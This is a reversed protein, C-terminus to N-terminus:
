DLDSTEEKEIKRLKSLARKLIRSVTRQSLKLINGVETQTLDMEFIYYSIKREVETLREFLQSLFIRDEIPLKFDEYKTSRIKTIDIDYDVKVIAKIIEKLGEEKINLKESLEKLSINENQSIIRLIKGLLDKIWAPRRILESRDRLYHKIEGDILNYAYSTFKTKYSPQFRKIAKMLGIWGVQYLDEKDRYNYKYAIKFILKSFRKFIEEELESSPSERYKIVLEEDSLEELDSKNTLFNAILETEMGKEEREM